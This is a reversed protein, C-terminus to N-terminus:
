RFLDFSQGFGNFAHSRAIVVVATATAAISIGAAAAASAVSISFPVMAIAVASVIFVAAVVVASTISFWIHEIVAGPSVAVDSPVAMRMAMMWDSCIVGALCALPLSIVVFCIGVPVVIQVSAFGLRLLAGDCSSLLLRPFLAYGISWSM